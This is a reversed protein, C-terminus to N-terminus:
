WTIRFDDFSGVYDLWEVDAGEVAALPPGEKVSTLFREIKGKEGEVMIEVRGDLMNRVWGLLGLSVAQDQTFARFFVGQVRGTVVIHARVM